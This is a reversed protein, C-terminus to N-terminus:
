SLCIVNDLKLTPISILDNDGLFFSTVGYCLGPIPGFMEVAAIDGFEETIFVIDGPKASSIHQLEANDILTQLFEQVTSAGYDRRLKLAASQPGNASISKYTNYYDTDLVADIGQLGFLLCNHNEFDFPKHANNIVESLRNQWNNHRM